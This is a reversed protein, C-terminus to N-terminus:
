QPPPPSATLAGRQYAIAGSVVGGEIFPTWSYAMGARIAAPGALFGKLQLFSGCEQSPGNYSLASGSRNLPVFGTSLTEGSLSMDMKFDASSSGFDVRMTSSTVAANQFGFATPTTAGIMTYTAQGTVPMNTVPLGVVYHLGGETGVDSGIFGSGTV